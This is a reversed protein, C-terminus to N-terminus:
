LTTVAWLTWLHSHDGFCLSRQQIQPKWDILKNTVVLCVSELVCTCIMVIYSFCKRSTVPLVWPASAASIFQFCLYFVHITCFMFPFGWFWHKSDNHSNGTSFKSPLNYSCCRVTWLQKVLYFHIYSKLLLHIHHVSHM